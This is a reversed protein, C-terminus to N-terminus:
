KAIRVRGAPKQFITLYEHLKLTRGQEIASSLYKVPNTIGKRSVIVKDFVAAGLDAFIKEIQFMLDYYRGARWDGAMVCLKTGPLAAEYTRRFIMQLLGVFGDWEPAKDIGDGAYPEINWYPPCTLLGDFPRIPERLSDAVRNRVGFQERAFTVAQVSTDYGVYDKGFAKAYFHREGWGAFPDFIRKADRLYLEYCLCAVERPFPSYRSRPDEKGSDVSTRLIADGRGKTSLDLVSLPMIEIHPKSTPPANPFLGKSVRRPKMVPM